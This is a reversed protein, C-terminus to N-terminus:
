IGHKKEMKKIKYTAPGNASPYEKGQIEALDIKYGDLYKANLLEPNNNNEKEFRNECVDQVLNNAVNYVRQQTFCLQYPRRDIPRFMHMYGEIWNPADFRIQEWLDMLLYHRYVNGGLSMPYGWDTSPEEKAWKWKLLGSRLTEFKPVDM